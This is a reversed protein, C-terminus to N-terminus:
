LYVSDHREAVLILSGATYQDRRPESLHLPRYLYAGMLEDLISLSATWFPNHRQSGPLLRLNM